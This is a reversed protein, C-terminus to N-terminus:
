ETQLVIYFDGNKSEIFLADKISDVETLPNDRHDCVVVEAKGYGHDSYHTLFDILESVNM